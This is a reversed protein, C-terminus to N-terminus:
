KAEYKEKYKRYLEMQRNNLEIDRGSIFAREVNNTLMDLADGTSVFLTAQKGIEISGVQEDIGLIKATNLSIAALAQEKTLGYAAATGATFPLNRSGMGEMDGTYSLCYLVNADQLKKALNFTAYIDDEERNPLSHVRQLIVSVKNERLLDTVMWSDYGGVITMKEIGYDRKLNVAEIIDKVYSVHIYLTKSGDFLGRTAEMRLDKEVQDTRQAYARADAVFERLEALKDGFDKNPRHSSGSSWWGSRRYMNPWNLHIGDDMRIVADEWNWADFHVVSSTGSFTGGRPTIQGMLVGNTRVTSTVDSETNYAIISRVHPNWQGTEREDHTARVQGIETIGLTIDPVIMGPYLHKGSYNLREEYNATPASALDGVYDIVGNKFGVAGNTIVEGTGTHVTCGEILISKTQAPAPSVETQANTEKSPSLIVLTTALITYFIKKM